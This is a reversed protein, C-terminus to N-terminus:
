NLHFMVPLNFYCRVPKDNKRGPIWNPMMNVVREAEKSLYPDPSRRTQVQEISGDENVVFVIVVRGHIGQEQCIVPYKLHERLWKNLDGPFRPDEDVYDEIPTPEATPGPIGITGYIDSGDITSGQGPGSPGLIDPGAIEIEPEPLIIEDPVENIFEPVTPAAAPPPSMVEQQFTIPIIDDEVFVSNYVLEDEIVNVERKSYELAVFLAALAMVFGALFNTLKQGQMEEILISNAKM